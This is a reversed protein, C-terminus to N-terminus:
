IKENIFVLPINSIITIVTIIIMVIVIIIKYSMNNNVWGAVVM